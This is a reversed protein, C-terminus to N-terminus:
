EQHPITVISTKGNHTILRSSKVRQQQIITTACIGVSFRVFVHGNARRMDNLWIIVTVPVQKVWFTLISLIVARKNTKSALSVTLGSKTINENANILITYFFIRVNKGCTKRRYIESETANKGLVLVMSM